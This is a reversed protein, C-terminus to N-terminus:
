RGPSWAPSGVDGIGSVLTRERRGDLSIIKLLSYDKKRFTYVLHRGDPAFSPDECDGDPASVLVRNDSGDPAATYIAFRGGTRLTYAIRNGSPSWSPSTAYGGHSIRREESSGIEKVYIAPSGGRDSVFALHKGDPSAAPSVELGWGSVVKETAGGVVRVRRIDSNGATSVSYYLWTGDPSFSGPAKADGARVVEKEVGTLPNRLYIVPLGTRFSTYSLWNGDPSWRPFLNYSRNGTLKRLDQGDMGVLYIEKGRGSRASFAIDTGFVGYVGTFAYVIENALRHAIWAAQRPSGSYRKGTILTGQTADFVRMEVSIQDGRGEVKGIVVAEAGVTKWAGFDLRQGAFHAPRIAELHANRPVLDFLDTLALDSEIIKPIQQSLAAPGSAVVFDGVALPLRRGGPANIDIYLVAGAVSPLLALAFLAAAATGWIRKRM